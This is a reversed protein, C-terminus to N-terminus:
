PKPSRIVRVLAVPNRWDFIEEDLDAIGHIGSHVHVFGEAGATDRESGGGCPPGPIFACDENNGESGADYAPVYHDNVQGTIKAKNLAFFADNTSILMGLASIRNNGGSTTLNVVGTQGPMIPGSALAVDAGLATMEDSLTSTAGGEALEALGPSAPKGAKFPSINKPHAIVIPPSFIQNSTLNTIRVRFTEAQASAAFGLSTVALGAILLRRLSKAQM